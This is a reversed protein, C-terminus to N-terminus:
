DVASGNTRRCLAGCLGALLGIPKGAVGPVLAHEALQAVRQVRPVEIEFHPADTAVRVLGHRKIHDASGLCCRDVLKLAVHTTPIARLNPAVRVLPRM